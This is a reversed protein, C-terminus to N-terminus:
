EDMSLRQILKQAAALSTIYHHFPQLVKTFAGSASPRKQM